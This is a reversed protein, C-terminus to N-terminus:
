EKEDVFIVTTGLLKDAVFTDVKWKGSIIPKIEVDFKLCQERLPYQPDDQDLERIMGFGIEKGKPFKDHTGYVKVQKGLLQAKNSSWIVWTYTDNKEVKFPKSLDKLLAYEGIKGLVSFDGNPTSFAESKTMSMHSINPVTIGETTPIEKESCGVIALFMVIALFGKRM